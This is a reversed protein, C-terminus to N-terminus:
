TSATLVACLVDRLTWKEKFHMHSIKKLKEKIKKKGLYERHCRHPSRLTCGKLDVAGRGGKLDLMADTVIKAPPAQTVDDYVYTVDDYVYTVDDYVYTVDDYM